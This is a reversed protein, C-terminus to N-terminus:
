MVVLLFESIGFNLECVCVDLSRLDILSLDNLLALLFETISSRWRASVVYM